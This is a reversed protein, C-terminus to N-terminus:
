TRQNYTNTRFLIEFESLLQLHRGEIMVSMFKMVKTRIRESIGINIILQEGQRANSNHRTQFCVILCPFICDFM